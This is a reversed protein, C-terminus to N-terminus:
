SGVRVEGVWLNKPARGSAAPGAAPLRRTAGRGAGAFPAPGVTNSRLPPLRGFAGPSAVASREGCPLVAAAADRFRFQNKVSLKQGERMTRM